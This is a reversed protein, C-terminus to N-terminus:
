RHLSDMPAVTVTSAHTYWVLGPAGNQQKRVHKRLTYDVAVSGSNKAKSYFAALSAAAQVDDSSPEERDDRALVVHAGPIGRTHFWLDNPRAIRFTVDANETPSRGVVIRSGAETRFELLARKRKRAPPAANKRVNRGDLQAAAAEVDPVDEPAAREAEWALADVAELAARVDTERREIHPLAAGLKKYRAFLNAARDKAEDHLEPALEYLTGYITDGETRLVDREGSQRRKSDLSGLEGELKAARERLRKILAARRRSETQRTGGAARERRWEALVDLLSSERSCNAGALSPLPVIHAQVLAGDERYVYLDGNDPEAVAREFTEGTVGAASLTRPMSGANPPLPPLEYPLGAQVSRRTNEAPSFEKAAAVVKEGKTMIINGFRPVLEAYVDFEDGVGFRSRSSFTFRLVRDGNRAKVATLVTGRLSAALARVFGPEALIGLEGDEITVAPPSGFPDFVLLRANPGRRLVIATRGDPLLGADTVKGGRLRAELERGLRRVLLWDTVV